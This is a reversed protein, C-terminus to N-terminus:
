VRWGYSLRRRRRGRQACLRLRHAQRGHLRFRRQEFLWRVGGNRLITERGLLVVEPDDLTFCAIRKKLPAAATKEAAARGIFDVETKLKVAWGLGAEFPSDNPTIDASWALYGKELRLSEIARYGVPRLGHGAGAAMLADFVEGLGEIPTHLEWGLEGVYTVRLARIRHGAVDIQRVHGFPFAANSVDADTAQELVARANPGMLSLAGWDETVDTLEAAAPDPLHDRIWAQDHTRFGTGTVLYFLDEDLRAVTLDCEVGGRSNLM